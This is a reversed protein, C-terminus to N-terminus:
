SPTRVWIALGGGRGRAAIFEDTILFFAFFPLKAIPQDIFAETKAKGSRFSGTYLSRDLVGIQMQTFDFALLNKKDLYKAPGMLKLKLGGVQVQNTIELLNTSLDIARFGIFAPIFQPLYFGKGLAIGGRQKLKRTGTSFCLQWSGFLQDFPYSLRQQKAAKEAQLLADVVHKPQPRNRDHNRYALAVQQLVTQYDSEIPTAEVTM